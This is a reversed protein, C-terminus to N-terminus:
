YIRICYIKRNIMKFKAMRARQELAMRSTCDKCKRNGKWVAYCPGSKENKKQLLYVAQCTELDILQVFDFFPLMDDILQHIQGENYVQLEKPLITNKSQCM